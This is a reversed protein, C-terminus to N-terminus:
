GTIQRIQVGVKGDILVLEGKGVLKGNAVLDVMEQPLKGLEIIHGSKLAAVEKLTMTKKGLVVVLPIPMSQALDKGSNTQSITGTPKQPAAVSSVPNNLVAKVPEAQPLPAKPATQPVPRPASPPVKTKPPSPELGLEALLDDDLPNDIDDSM